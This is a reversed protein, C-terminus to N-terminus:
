PLDITTFLVQYYLNTTNLLFSEDNLQKHDEYENNVRAVTYTIIRLRYNTRPSLSVNISYVNYGVCR